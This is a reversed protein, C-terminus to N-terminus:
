HSRFLALDDMGFHSTEWWDPPTAGRTLCENVAMSATSVRRVLGADMQPEFIGWARSPCHLAILLAFNKEGFKKNQINSRMYAIYTDNIDHLFLKYTDDRLPHPQISKWTVMRKFYNTIIKNLRDVVYEQACRYDALALARVLVQGAATAFCYQDEPLKTAGYMALFLILHAQFEFESNTESDLEYLVEYRKETAEKMPLSFAREWVKCGALIEKHVNLAKGGVVFVVLEKKSMVMNEKVTYDQFIHTNVAYFQAANLPREAAPKFPTNISAVNVVADSRAFYAAASM